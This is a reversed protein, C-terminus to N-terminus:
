MGEQGCATAHMSAQALIPALCQYTHEMYSWVTAMNFNEDNKQEKQLAMGDDELTYM